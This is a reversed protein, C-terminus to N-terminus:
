PAFIYDPWQTQNIRHLRYFANGRIEQVQDKKENKLKEFYAELTKEKYEADLEIPKRGGGYPGGPDYERNYYIGPGHKHFSGGSHAEAVMLPSTFKKTVHFPEVKLLDQGVITKMFEKTRPSYGVPAKNVHDLQMKRTSPFSFTAERVKKTKLKPVWLSLVRRGIRTGEKWEEKPSPTASETEDWNSESLFGGVETPWEVDINLFKEIKWARKLIRVRKEPSYKVEKARESCDLEELDVRKGDPETLKPILDRETANFLIYNKLLMCALVERGKVVPDVEIHVM